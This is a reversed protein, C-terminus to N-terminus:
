LSVIPERTSAADSHSIGSPSNPSLRAAQISLSASRKRVARKGGWTVSREPRDALLRVEGGPRPEGRGRESRHRHVEVGHLTAVLVEAAEEHARDFRPREGGRV